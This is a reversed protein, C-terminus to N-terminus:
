KLIYEKGWWDKIIWDKTTECLQFIVSLSMPRQVELHLSLMGRPIQQKRPWVLKHHWTRWWLCHIVYKLCGQFLYPSGHKTWVANQVWKRFTRVYNYDAIFIKSRINARERCTFYQTLLPEYTVNIQTATIYAFDAIEQMSFLNSALSMWTAGRGLSNRNVNGPCLYVPNLYSVM